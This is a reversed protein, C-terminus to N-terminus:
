IEHTCIQMNELITRLSGRRCGALLRDIDPLTEEDNVGVGVALGEGLSLGDPLQDFDALRDRDAVGVGLAEREGGEREVEGDSDRLREMVDEGDTDPVLVVDGM